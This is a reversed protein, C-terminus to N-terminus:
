AVPASEAYGPQSKAWQLIGRALAYAIGNQTDTQQLWQEQVPHSIFETEILISPYTQAQVLVYDRRPYEPSPSGKIGRDKHGVAFKMMAQQVVNALAKARSDKANYLTEIGCATHTPSANAHIAIALHVKEKTAMAVIGDLPIFADTVRPLVIEVGARSLHETLALTIKLVVDSEKCGTPGVAGPDKGGHGADVCVKLRAGHLTPNVAKISDPDVM